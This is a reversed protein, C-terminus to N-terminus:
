SKCKRSQRMPKKNQRIAHSRSLRFIFILKVMKQFIKILNMKIKVENNRKRKEVYDPNTENKKNGKNGKPAM